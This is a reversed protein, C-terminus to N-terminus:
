SRSKQCCGPMNSVSLRPSQSSKASHAHRLNASSPMSASNRTPRASRRRDAPSRDGARTPHHVPNVPCRKEELRGRPGRRAHNARERIRHALVHGVKGHIVSEVCMSKDSTRGVQVAAAQAAAIGRGSDSASDDAVRCVAPTLVAAAPRGGCCRSQRRCSGSANGASASVWDRDEVAPMKNRKQVLTNM